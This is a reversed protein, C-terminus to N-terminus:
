FNFNDEEKTLRDLNKIYNVIDGGGDVILIENEETTEPKIHQQEVFFDAKQLEPIYDDIEDVVKEEKEDDDDDDNDNDGDNIESKKIKFVTEDFEKSTELIKKANEEEIRIEEKKIEEKQENIYDMWQFYRDSNNKKNNLQYWNDRAIADDFYKMLEHIDFYYEDWRRSYFKYEDDMRVLILIDDPIIGNNLMNDYADLELSMLLEDIREKEQKIGEIKRIRLREHYDIRIQNWVDEDMNNPVVNVKDWFKIEKDEMTMLEEYTDQDGEKESMGSVLQCQSETFYKREKLKEVKTKKDKVISLIIDNRIATHFCVLLPKVKKNFAELYKIINYEDKLLTSELEEIKNELEEIKSEDNTELLIKRISEIDKITELNTEVVLNDILKCNLQIESDVRIPYGHEKEYDALQKKTMKSKVLRKADSVSKSNGTNVYYITDGLNVNLNNLIALEMHAQPSMLNGAKNRKSNRIKYDSISNKVKSKSAIKVLPINYNCINDVYEYYYNIFEKGKGNLLLKIAKSLFDEIYVPMKKSKISNGVLKLKGNLLNAYNKRSFNITSEYIDDIDLGMRGIMYNENFEALVADLGILEKGAYEETKWHSGRATYKIENINDPFAFNFGDTDGVLPKFKYKETFHRVMLRLYQRGRCTTEEACDSDGWNFIYPAGYAGFWSNALIKLPLQKKDYLSSLSKNKDLEEKLKELEHGSLTHGEEQIKKELKKAIKKHTGTLFKFKDRTDVIYTLLGKMVGSIDLEPFIEHTLETKPYLAAYDLKVVDKAYGLELLRSLGGTFDRKNETEPIALDSQYSWAAMILKWQGATGMTSSRSYTTPLLKAILFAAQNFITDVKETEWLDDILYRQVIYNGRVSIYGERLEMKDTIRYWDGNSENFAYYNTKDSWIAHIKNGPVYVRNKKAVESYQTVYKLGWGKIDSNIAQARRVSHAIDIINYGYIYTQEFTEMENGLKLMAPKRKLKSVGDLGISLEQIPLSLRNARDVIFKWDFSESNYGSIIDPQIRNIVEFFKLIIERESQRRAIPTDGEVELVYEFGRNDRMGIQFIADKNGNLGETELDFQFRHVDNYDDMGKFLRIGTQIMFQEVPTFMFFMKSVKRDFVDIGGEKFFNVLDNYSKDCTAIYRYGNALRNPINGNEDSVRLKKTKIGYKTAANIMKMKKGGYLMSIVDHKFWLFPKYKHKEIKKGISPDNVVLYVHPESYSAEIAVVYKKPNTGSLFNEIVAPQVTSRSVPM